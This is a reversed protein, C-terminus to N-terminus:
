KGDKTWDTSSAGGWQHRDDKKTHSHKIAKVIKTLDENEFEEDDEEDSFNEAADNYESVASNNDSDYDAFDFDKLMEKESYNTKERKRKKGSALINDDEEHSDKM